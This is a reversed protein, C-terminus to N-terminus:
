KLRILLTYGSIIFVICIIWGCADEDIADLKYLLFTMLAIIAAFAYFGWISFIMSLTRKRKASKQKELYFGIMPSSPAIHQLMLLAQSFKAYLADSFQNHIRGEESSYRWKTTELQASWMSLVENLGSEDNPIKTQLVIDVNELVASNLLNMYAKEEQKRHEEAKEEQVRARREADVRRYPTAHSDGFFFNSVAKGTNKGIERKFSDFTKGMILNREGGTDM